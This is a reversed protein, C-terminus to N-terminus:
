GDNEEAWGTSEVALEDRAEDYGTARFAISHKRTRSTQTFKTVRSAADRAIASVTAFGRKSMELLGNTLPDDSLDTSLGTEPDRAMLAHHMEGARMTKLQSDIQRFAEEADPNPLQARFSIKELTSVGSLWEEFDRPDLVAKVDWDTTPAEREDEGTQLLTRFVSAIASESFSRHRAVFLLRHSTEISFPALASRNGLEESHIWNRTDSDFYDDERVQPSEWGVIGAVFREDSDILRNGLKWERDGRKGVRVAEGFLLAEVLHDSFDTPQNAFLNGQPRPHRNIRYILVEAETDSFWPKRESIENQRQSPEM